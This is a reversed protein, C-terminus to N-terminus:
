KSMLPAIDYFLSHMYNSQSSFASFKNILTPARNAQFMLGMTGGGYLFMGVDNTIAGAAQFPGYDLKGTVAFDLTQGLFGGINSPTYDKMSPYMLLNFLRQGNLGVRFSGDIMLPVSAPTSAGGTLFESGAGIAVETLGGIVQISASTIAETDYRPEFGVISNEVSLSFNVSKNNSSLNLNYNSTISNSTSTSSKSYSMNIDSAKGQFLQSEGMSNGKNDVVHVIQFNDGGFSSIYRKEGTEINFEWEDDNMGNPDVLMVPNGRVYMFPSTSPYMDSLPDVSLWVSLGSDYYRAGFYTYGTEADREKGTFKFRIDHVSSRQDIFQEGFPMYALYQNVNGSGDTIWSSSGLHDGHYFYLEGEDNEQQMLEKMIPFIPEIEIQVGETCQTQLINKLLKEAISYIDDDNIPKIKTFPNVLNNAMGGGLKSTVRQSEIYYHKTYEKDTVIMYPSTYLTKNLMAQDIYNDGNVSMREIAGTLKWVREGGANYIYSSLQRQRGEDRVISLRNEEDWCMNRMVGSSVNDLHTMNGNADWAMNHTLNQNDSISQVAHPQSTSYSYDNTYSVNSVVGSLLTNASLSKQTINGTASYQMNLTYTQNHSTNLMDFYTFTGGSQTLRSLSDYKYTYSYVGGMDTYGTASNSIREINGNDLHSYNIDQILKNNDWTKLNALRRNLPNYTYKSATGNGYRIRVRSGFMDYRISDVYRQTPHQAKTGNLSILQGANNYDYNVAEGDPYYISDIRNWSDYKWKMKFTYPHGGPVV